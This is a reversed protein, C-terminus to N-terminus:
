SRKRVKKPRWPDRVTHQLSLRKVTREMWPKSGFPRGRTISGRLADLTPQEQPEDIAQEWNDPRDVPWPTMWNADDGGALRAALSGFRWDRARKVAKARVPNAEVYRLVTLLHEDQQIPFSKYRGQYLHGEGVSNRHQRWRRVHTNSLWGVFKALDDDRTPWLVLHWHNSMLCYALVRMGPVRQRAQRLLKIFAAFDGPKTFIRMCCNGRNIVHYMLGGVAARARRGM